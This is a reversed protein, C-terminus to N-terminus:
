SIKIQNMHTCNVAEFILNIFENGASPRYDVQDRM